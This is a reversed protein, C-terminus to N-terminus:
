GRSQGSFAPRPAVHRGPAQDGSTAAQSSPRQLPTVPRQAQRRGEDVLRTLENSLRDAEELQSSMSREAEHVTGKLAAVAREAVKTAGILEGVLSKLAGEDQRLRKLRENLLACYGITIALLIGVMIEIIQGLPLGLM